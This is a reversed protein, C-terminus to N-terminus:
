PITLGARKGDEVLRELSIEGSETAVIRKARDIFTITPFGGQLYRKAVGLGPDYGIPYTVHFSHAFSQVDAASEPSSRDIATDSGSVAVIALRNGLRRHLEDLAAVERQCHPCWTAFIELLIPKSIGRLDFREGSVSTVSFPPAKQGITLSAIIPAESADKPVRSANTVVLAAIAGILALTLALAAILGGANPASGARARRRREARNIRTANM